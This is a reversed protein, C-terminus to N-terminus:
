FNKTNYSLHNLFILFLINGPRTRIDTKEDATASRTDINESKALYSQSVVRIGVFLNSVSLVYKQLPLTYIDFNL